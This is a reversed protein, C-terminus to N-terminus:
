KIKDLQKILLSCTDENITGIKTLTKIMMELILKQADLETKYPKPQETLFAKARDPLEEQTIITATKTGLQTAYWNPDHYYNAGELHIVQGYKQIHNISELPVEIKIPYNHM